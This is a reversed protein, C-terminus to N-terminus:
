LASAWTWLVDLENPLINFLSTLEVLFQSTREFNTAEVLQTIMRAEDLPALGLSRIKDQVITKTIGIELAALWFQRSSLAPMAAELEDEPPVYPAVDGERAAAFLERNYDEPSQATATFPVWGFRPHNVEM